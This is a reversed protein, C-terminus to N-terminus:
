KIKSAIEDIISAFTKQIYFLSIESQSAMFTPEIGTIQKTTFMELSANELKNKTKKDGLYNEKNKEYDLLTLYRRIALTLAHIGNSELLYNLADIPTIPNISEFLAPTSISQKKILSLRHIALETLGTQDCILQVEINKAEIDTQGLLFDTTVELFNAIRVLVEIDPKRLDNEYNNIASISISCNEALAEQSLNKKTRLKIIREGFTLELINKSNILEVKKPFDKKGKLKEM